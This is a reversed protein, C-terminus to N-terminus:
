INFSMDRTEKLQFIGFFDFTIQVNEGLKREGLLGGVIIEDRGALARFLEAFHEKRYDLLGPLLL